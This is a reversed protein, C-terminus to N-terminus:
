GLEGTVPAGATAERIKKLQEAVWDPREIIVQKLLQLIQEPSLPVKHLKLIEVRVENLAEAIEKEKGLMKKKTGAITDLSDELGQKITQLSGKIPDIVLSIDQQSLRGKKELEATLRKTIEAGMTDVRANVFGVLNTYALELEAIRSKLWRNEMELKDAEKVRNALLRITAMISGLKANVETMSAPTLRYFMRYGGEYDWLINLQLGAVGMVMDMKPDEVSFNIPKIDFIEPMEKSFFELYEKIGTAGRLVRIAREEWSKFEEVMEKKKYFADIVLGISGDEAIGTARLAGIANMSADYVYIPRPLIAQNSVVDVERVPM